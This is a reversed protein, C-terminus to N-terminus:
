IGRSYQGATTTSVLPKLHAVADGAGTRQRVAAAAAAIFEHKSCLLQTKSPLPRIDVLFVTDAGPADNIVAPNFYHRGNYVQNYWGRRKYIFFPQRAGDTLEVSKECSALCAPTFRETACGTCNRVICQRTNMLLLPAYVTYWRSFGASAAVALMQERSIEHSLFAGASGGYERLARLAFSNTINLLPGAIWPIGRAAAAAGIGTNDSIIMPPKLQSLLSVAGTFHEGILISPFWPITGPYGSFLASYRDIHNGCDVPLAFLATDTVKRALQLDDGTDVLVALTGNQRGANRDPSAAPLTVPGAAPEEPSHSLKAVARRRMDNLASIPLFLDPALGDTDVGDLVYPTEGLMGFKEALVEETLAKKAAPALLQESAVTVMTDGSSFQAELPSGAAGQVNVRVRKKEVQLAAIREKLDTPGNYDGQRYLEDGAKIKGKLKHTIRYRYEFRGCQGGIFGTCIFTFGAAYVLVPVEEDVQVERDLKLIGTDATYSRITALRVLSRDRSSDIFMSRDITGDLYGSTLSRNFVSHLAPDDDPLPAGGTYRDLQRRWAAVAAYVYKYSKIRGEIKVSSIGAAALEKVRAFASNDKLNFPAVDGKSGGGQYSRRCPQVCAGRNGSRGSMASSMYCQGSFSICFAGHVFVEAKMSSRAACPVLERLEDLSLERSFNVQRVGFPELFGIQGCNHTTMQTSAHVEVDPFYKRLLYHIGLDQVIVADVGIRRVGAILGAVEDIEEEVMLSNLTLYIRCDHQHAITVLDALQQLSLNEARSRANFRPLGCYVADAGALIAAKVADTDGGPALLEISRENTSM